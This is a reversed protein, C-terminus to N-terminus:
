RNASLQMISCDPWIGVCAIVLVLLKSSPTAFQYSHLRNFSFVVFVPIVTSELQRRRVSFSGGTIILPSMAFYAFERLYKPNCKYSISRQFSMSFTYLM